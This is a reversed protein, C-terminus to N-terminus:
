GTMKGFKADWELKMLQELESFDMARALSIYQQAELYEHSHLHMRFRNVLLTKVLKDKNDDHGM